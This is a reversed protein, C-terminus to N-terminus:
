NLDLDAETGQEDNLWGEYNALLAGIAIQRV